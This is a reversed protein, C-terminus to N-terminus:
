RVVIACSSGGPVKFSVGRLQLDSDDASIPGQAKAACKQGHRGYGFVVDTFELELGPGQRPLEEVGPRDQITPKEKLLTFLAGMDILSQKTERYVTGLFNLPMSLQVLLGNVMVVDGVTLTGDTVGQAALAMAATTSVTFILGQGLNLMSLSQQTRVAAGEYGQLSRHYRDVEHGEAGYVKVAEYNVLSDVARAGGEADHKNMEQRFRTRWQTVAVTFATYSAVSVATLASLTWGCYYALLGSALALEFVTPVVNFVMSSLLFTIGRTGRDIVRQLSGTKRDLHWALDLKFLQELVGRSVNTVVSQAVRSFIVSRLETLVLSSARAAGWAAILAVPTLGMVTAVEAGHQATTALADVAYKFLLPVQVNIGKALILLGGAILVRPRYGDKANTWM